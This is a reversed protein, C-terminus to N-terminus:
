GILLNMEEFKVHLKPKVGKYKYSLNRIVYAVINSLLGLQYCKPPQDGHNGRRSISFWLLWRLYCGMFIFCCLASGDKTSIQAFNHIIRASFGFYCFGGHAILLM